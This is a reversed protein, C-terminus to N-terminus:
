PGEAVEPSTRKDLATLMAIFHDARRAPLKRRERNPYQPLPRLNSPRSVVSAADRPPEIDQIKSAAIALAPSKNARRARGEFFLEGAAGGAVLAIAIISALTEAGHFWIVSATAELLLGVLLVYGALHARSLNRDYSEFSESGCYDAQAKVTTM